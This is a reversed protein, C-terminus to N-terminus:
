SGGTHIVSPATTTIRPAATSAEIHAARRRPRAATAGPGGGGATRVGEGYSRESPALHLRLADDLAAGLPGSLRDLAAAGANAADNSVIVAPRRKRPESGRAPDLDVLRTEGHLM